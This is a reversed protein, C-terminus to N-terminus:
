FARQGKQLVKSEHIPSNTEKTKIDCVPKIHCINMLFFNTSSIPSAIQHIRVDIGDRHASSDEGFQWCCFNDFHGLSVVKTISHRMLVIHCTM